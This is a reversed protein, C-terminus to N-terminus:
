EKRNVIDVKLFDARSQLTFVLDYEVTSNMHLVLKAETMSTGVKELKTYGSGTGPLDAGNNKVTFTTLGAMDQRLRGNSTKYEMYNIVSNPDAGSTWNTENGFSTFNILIATNELIYSDGKKQASVDSNSSIILDGLAISSGPEIIDADTKMEWRIGNETVDVKGKQIELPIIRQSGYGESSISKLQKDLSLFNDKTKTFIAKDRLNELLPTGIEIVIIMIITTILIYLVASVWVQGRKQHNTSVTRKKIPM